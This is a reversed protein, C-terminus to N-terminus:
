DFDARCADESVFGELLVVRSLPVHLHRRRDTHVATQAAVGSWALAISHQALDHSAVVFIDVSIKKAVTPTIAILKYIALMPDAMCADGAVIIRDADALTLGNLM